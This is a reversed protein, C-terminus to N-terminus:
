SVSAGLGTMMSFLPSDIYVVEIFYYYLLIFKYFEGKTMGMNM